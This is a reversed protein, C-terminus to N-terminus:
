IAHSLSQLQRGAWHFVKGGNSLTWAAPTLVLRILKGGATAIHPLAGAIMSGHEYKITVAIIRLSNAAREDTAARAALDRLAALAQPDKAEIKAAFSCAARYAGPRKKLAEYMQKQAQDPSM